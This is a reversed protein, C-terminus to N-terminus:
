PVYNASGSFGSTWTEMIEPVVKLFEIILPWIVILMAILALIIFVWIVSSFFTEQRKHVVGGVRVRARQLREEELEDKYRGRVYEGYAKAGYDRDDLPM